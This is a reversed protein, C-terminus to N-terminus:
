PSGPVHPVGTAAEGCDGDFARTIEEPLPDDFDAGVEIEEALLGLPRAMARM